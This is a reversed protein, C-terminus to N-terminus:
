CEQGDDWTYMMPSDQLEIDQNIPTAPKKITIEVSCLMLICIIWALCCLIAINTINKM